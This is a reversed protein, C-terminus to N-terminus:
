RLVLYAMRIMIKGLANIDVLDWVEHPKVQSLDGHVTGYGANAVVIDLRDIRHEAQILKVVNQADTDSRINPDTKVVVVKSGAAHPLESIFNQELDRVADM